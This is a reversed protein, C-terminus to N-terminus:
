GIEGLLNKKKTLDGRGVGEQREEGARGHSLDASAQQGVTIFSNAVGPQLCPVQQEDKSIEENLHYLKVLNPGQFLM